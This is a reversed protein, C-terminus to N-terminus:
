GGGGGGKFNRHDYRNDHDFKGKGKSDKGSKGKPKAAAKPWSSFGEEDDDNDDDSQPTKPMAEWSASSGPMTDDSSRRWAKRYTTCVNGDGSILM